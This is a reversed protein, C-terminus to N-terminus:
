KKIKFIEMKHRFIQPIIPAPEAFLMTAETCPNSSQGVAAICM